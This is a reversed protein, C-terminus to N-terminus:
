RGLRRLFEAEDLVEVGLEIAREYKSGPSEGAVVFTTKKSVSSAV